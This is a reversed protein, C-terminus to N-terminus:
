EQLERLSRNFPSPSIRRETTEVPPLSESGTPSSLGEPLTSAPLLIPTTFTSVEPRILAPYSVASSYRPFTVSTAPISQLGMGEPVRRNQFGSLGDSELRDDIALPPHGPYSRHPYSPYGSRYRPYHAPIRYRPHNPFHYVPPSVIVPQYIVVPRGISLFFDSTSVVVGGSRIVVTGAEVPTALAAGGGVVVLTTLWRILRRCPLMATGM